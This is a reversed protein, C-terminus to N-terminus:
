SNPTYLKGEYRKTYNTSGDKWKVLFEWDKTTEKCKKQGCRSKIYADKEQVSTKADVRHDIIEDLLVQHTDLIRNKNAIGM